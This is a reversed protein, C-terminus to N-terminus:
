DILRLVYHRTVPQNVKYIEEEIAAAASESAKINEQDLSVLSHFYLQVDAGHVHLQPQFGPVRSPLISHHQPLCHTCREPPTHNFHWRSYVLAQAEM